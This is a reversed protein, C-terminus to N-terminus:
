RLEFSLSVSVQLQQEGPDIKSDAAGTAGGREARMMVM